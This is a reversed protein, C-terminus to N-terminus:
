QKKQKQKKEEHHIQNKTMLKWKKFNSLHQLLLLHFNKLQM